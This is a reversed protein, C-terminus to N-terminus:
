HKRKKAVITTKIFENINSIDDTLKKELNGSELQEKFIDVAIQIIEIIKGNKINDEIEEFNKGIGPFMNVGLLEILQDAEKMDVKNTKIEELTENLFEELEKSDLKDHITDIIETFDLTLKRKSM